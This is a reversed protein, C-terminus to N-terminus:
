SPTQLPDHHSGRRSNFCGDNTKLYRADQEQWGGRSNAFLVLFFHSFLLRLSNAAKAVSVAIGQAREKGEMMEVKGDFIDYQAENVTDIDM